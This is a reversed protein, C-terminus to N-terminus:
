WKSSKMQKWSRSLNRMLISLELGIMKKDSQRSNEQSLCTKCCYCMSHSRLKGYENGHGFDNGADIMNQGLVDNELMRQPKSGQVKEYVFEEVRAGKHKVSM